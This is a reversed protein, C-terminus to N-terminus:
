TIIDNVLPHRWKAVPNWTQTDHQYIDARTVTTLIHAPLEDPTLTGSRGRPLVAFCWARPAQEDDYLLGDWRLLIHDREAADQAAVRAEGELRLVHVLDVLNELRAGNYDLPLATELDALLSEDGVLIDLYTPPDDGHDGGLIVTCSRGNIGGITLDFIASGDLHHTVEGIEVEVPLYLDTLPFRPM